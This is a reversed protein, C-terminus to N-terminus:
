DKEEKRYDRLAWYSLYQYEKLLEGSEESLDTTYEGNEVYFSGSISQVSQSIEGIKEFYPSGDINMYEILVSALYSSSIDEGRGNIVEGGNEAVLNKFATNGHIIYPTFYKNQAAEPTDSTVDKGLLTLYEGESDFFPLHDGFFVVVTPVDLDEAYDCIEGLLADADYLGDAYNCLLNYGDEDLGDIPKLRYNRPEDTSYPGHNQITVNFNFYGNGDGNELYDGYESIIKDSTVKDSVYYHILDESTYDFDDEFLVSDFGLRPYVAKRNYFWEKGPHMAKTTYGYDKFMQAVSYAKQTVHTKYVVPMSSDILSINIGTLFEFETSATSGAFGPVSIYGWLSDDRLRDFSQMPNMGDYWEINECSEMDFFAESMVAIVNVPTELEGALADPEGGTIAEAAETTYGEPPTYQRQTTHSLFTYIFGKNAAVSVDDYENAFSPLVKYVATGNYITFYGAIGLAACIGFLALRHLPKTKANTVNKLVLIFAAIFIILAAILTYPIPFSYGTMIDAAESVLSFDFVSLTESRFYVKFYNVTLLIFASLATILFSIWVRNTLCYIVCMLLFVPLVNCLLIMPMVATSALAAASNATQILAQLLVCLISLLLMALVSRLIGCDKFSNKLCLNKSM